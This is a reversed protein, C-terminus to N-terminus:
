TAISWVAALHTGAAVVTLVHWVEHYSFTDPRLTPWQRAFAVAGMTYVVGGSLILVLPVRGYSWLWPVLLLGAWGLVIYLVVGIRASRHAGVAKLGAGVAAAVWVGILAVVAWRTPLVILGVAHFTGAVAAFIVAHDARRWARRARLTHVLRHYTSSVGLMACVGVAYVIVAARARAGDAAVSLLVFLPVAVVFALQHVRGRWTPRTPSGLPADLGDCWRALHDHEPQRCGTDLTVHLVPGPSVIRSTSRVEVSSRVRM